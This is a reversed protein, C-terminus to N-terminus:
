STKLCPQRACCGAPVWQPGASTRTYFGSLNEDLRFMHRVTDALTDRVRASARGAAVKVRLM